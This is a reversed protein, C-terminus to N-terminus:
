HLVIARLPPRPSSDDVAGSVLSRLHLRRRGGLRGVRAGDGGGGDHGAVLGLGPRAPPALRAGGEEGRLFEQLLVVEGVVLELAFEALLSPISMSMKTPVM